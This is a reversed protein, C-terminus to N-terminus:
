VVNKSEVHLEQWQLDVSSKNDSDEHIKIM